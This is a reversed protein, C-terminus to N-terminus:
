VGCGPKRWDNVDKELDQLFQYIDEEGRVVMEHDTLVPCEITKNEILQFAVVLEELKEKWQQVATNYLPYSITIM